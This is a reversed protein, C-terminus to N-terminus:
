EAKSSGKKVLLYTEEYIRKRPGIAVIEIIRGTAVRYVIRFRGIKFSNLGKLNNKLSKGSQPDSLITKLAFKVKRKLEPHLGALMERVEDSVRLKYLSKKQSAM